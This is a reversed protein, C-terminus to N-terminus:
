HRKEGGDDLSWIKEARGEFYLILWASRGGGTKKTRATMMWRERGLVVHGWSKPEERDLGGEM